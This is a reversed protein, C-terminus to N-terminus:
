YNAWDKDVRQDEILKAWRQKLRERQPASLCLFMSGMYVSDEIDAVIRNVAEKARASPAEQVVNM